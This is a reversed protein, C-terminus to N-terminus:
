GFTGVPVDYFLMGPRLQVPQDPGVQQDEEPGPVELFLHNEEPLGALKLLESGTMVAEPARYRQNNVFIQFGPRTAAQAELALDSDSM